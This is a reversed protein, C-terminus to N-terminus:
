AAPVSKKSIKKPDIEVESNGAKLRVKSATGLLASALQDAPHIVQEPESQKDVFLNRTISALLEAPIASNETEKRWELCSEVVWSARNVDLYFQQLQFEASAHREAWGNEWRVYYLVTAALGLSLLVLRAWLWYKDIVPVAAASAALENRYADPLKGGNVFLQSVASARLSLAADSQLHIENLAMGILVCLVLVSFLIGIRVPWRKAATDKSVGFNNIRLKIDELMGNRIERRAHTNDRDDIEQLKAHIEAERKAVAVEKAAFEDILKQRAAELDDDNKKRGAALEAQVTVAFATTKELITSATEELREMVNNHIALTADQQPTASGSKKEISGLEKTLMGVIAIRETPPPSAVNTNFRVDIEDFYPDKGTSKNGGRYYNLTLGGIGMSAHWLTEANLSQIQAWVSGEDHFNWAGLAVEGYVQGSIGGSPFQDHIKKWAKILIRDTVRPITIITHQSM